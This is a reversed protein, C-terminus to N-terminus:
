VTAYKNSGVPVVLRGSTTDCRLVGNASLSGASGSVRLIELPTQNDTNATGVYGIIVNGADARLVAGARTGRTRYTDSNTGAECNFAVFPTGTTESGIVSQYGNNAAGFEISMGNRRVSLLATTISGNVAANGVYVGSSNAFILNAGITTNGSVTLTSLTGLGTIGTYAGSLQANALTGSTINTANTYYSAAQGNLYTTNNASYATGTYV